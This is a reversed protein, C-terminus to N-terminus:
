VPACAATADSMTQLTIFGSIGGGSSIRITSGAVGGISFSQLERPEFRFDPQSGSGSVFITLASPDNYGLLLGYIMFEETSTCLWTDSRWVPGVTLIQSFSKEPEGQVATTIVFALIIIATASSILFVDSRYM